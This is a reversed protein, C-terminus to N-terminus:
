HGCDQSDESAYQVCFWWPDSVLHGNASGYVSFPRNYYGSHVVVFSTSVLAGAYMFATGNVLNFQVSYTDPFVQTSNAGNPQPPGSITNNELPDVYRVYYQGRAMLSRVTSNALAGAIVQQQLATFPPITYHRDPLKYVSVHTVEDGSPGTHSVTINLLYNDVYAMQYGTSWNGTVEQRGTVNLLAFIQNTLGVANHFYPFYEEYASEVFPLVQPSSLTTYLDIPMFPGGGDAYCNEVSWTLNAYKEATVQCDGTSTVSTSLTALSVQASSSSPGKLVAIPLAVAAFGVAAIGMATLALKARPSPM